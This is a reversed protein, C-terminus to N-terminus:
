NYSLSARNDWVQNFTGTGAWKVTVDPDATEDVRKIRWSASSTATGPEAEGIYTYSGSEDILQTRVGGGLAALIDQQTEETAPNIVQEFANLIKSVLGTRM